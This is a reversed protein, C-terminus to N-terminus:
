TYHSTMEPLNLIFLASTEFRVKEIVECKAKESEELKAKEAAQRRAKQQQLIRDVIQHLVVFDPVSFSLPPLLLVIM